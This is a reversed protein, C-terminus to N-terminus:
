VHEPVEPVQPYITGQSRIQEAKLALKDIVLERLGKPSLPDHYYTFPYLTDLNKEVSRAMDRALETSRAFLEVNVPHHNYAEDGCRRRRGGAELPSRRGARERVELRPRTAERRALM